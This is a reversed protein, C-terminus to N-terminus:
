SGLLKNIGAVLAKMAEKDPLILSQTDGCDREGQRIIWCDTEENAPKEVVIEYDDERRITVSSFSVEDVIPAKAM